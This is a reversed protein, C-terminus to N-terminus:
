PNLQRLAKNRAPSHQPLSSIRDSNKLILKKVVRLKIAEKNKDYWKKNSYRHKVEPLYCEGDITPLKVKIRKRM